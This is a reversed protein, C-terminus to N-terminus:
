NRFCLFQESLIRISKLQDKKLKPLLNLVIELDSNTNDFQEVLKFFQKETVGYADLFRVLRYGTPPNERGNEIQSILSDSCGMIRGAIKMSFGAEERLKKLVRAESTMLVYSTRSIRSM